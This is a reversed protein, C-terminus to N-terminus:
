GFNNRKGTAPKFVGIDFEEENVCKLKIGIGSRRGPEYPSGRQKGIIGELGRRKVEQLLATAHGGIEGSFRIPDGADSCIQELLQKRPELPLSILSKGDLQLLDFV